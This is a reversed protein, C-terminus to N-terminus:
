TRVRGVATGPTADANNWIEAAPAPVHVFMAAASVVDGYAALQTVM